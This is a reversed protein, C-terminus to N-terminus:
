RFQVYIIDIYRDYRTFRTLRFRAILVYCVFAECVAPLVYVKVLSTLIFSSTRKTGETSRAIVNECLGHLDPWVPYALSNSASCACM